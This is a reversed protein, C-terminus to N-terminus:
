LGRRRMEAAIEEPSYSPQGGQSQAFTQLEKTQQPSFMPKSEIEELKEDLQPSGVYKRYIAVTEANRQNMGKLMNAIKIRGEQSQSLAPLAAMYLQQEYNATSGPDRISPVLQRAMSQFLEANSINDPVPLGLTSLAKAYFPAAAGAWGGPIKDGIEIMRNLVQLTGRGTAAKKAIDKVADQDISIRAKTQAADMGEATNILTSAAGSRANKRDWDTFTDTEGQAVAAAYDKQKPTLDSTKLAHELLTKALAQQGAPLKPNSAAAMLAPINQSAPNNTISPPMIPRASAPSAPAPANIQPAIDRGDETVASVIGESAQRVPAQQRPPADSPVSPSPATPMASAPPQQQSMGGITSAFKESAQQQQDSNYMSMAMEPKSNRMALSRLAIPSSTDREWGEQAQPNGLIGLQALRQAAAQRAPEYEPKGYLPLLALAEGSITNRTNELKQQQQETEAARIRAAQMLPTAVDLPKVGLAVSYDAM